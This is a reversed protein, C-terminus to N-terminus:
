YYYLELIKIHLIERYNIIIIIVIIITMLNDATMICKSACMVYNFITHLNAFLSLLCNKNFLKVLFLPLHLLTLLVIIIRSGVALLKHYKSSAAINGLEPATVTSITLPVSSFTEVDMLRRGKLDVLLSHAQLFDAGVLPHAADAVTFCWQFKKQKFSLPVIRTGYTKISSGNAAVLFHTLKHNFHDFHSAPILNIQAGTDVLPPASLQRIELNEITIVYLLSVQHKYLKLITFQLRPHIHRSTLWGFLM